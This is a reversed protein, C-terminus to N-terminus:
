GLLADTIRGCARSLRKRVSNVCVRDIAAIEANSMGGLMRWVTDRETRPLMDVLEHVEAWDVDSPAEAAHPGNHSVLKVRREGRRHRDIASNRIARSVYRDPDITPRGFRNRWVGVAIGQLIDQADHYRHRRALSDLRGRAYVSSELIGNIEDHM